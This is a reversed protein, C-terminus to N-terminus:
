LSTRFLQLQNRIERRKVMGNFALNTRDVTNARKGNVIDCM